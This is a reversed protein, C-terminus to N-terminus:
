GKSPEADKVHYASPLDPGPDAFKALGMESTTAIKRRNRGGEEEEEEEFDKEEAKM